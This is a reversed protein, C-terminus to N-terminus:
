CSWGRNQQSVGRPADFYFIHSFPACQQVNSLNLAPGCQASFRKREAVPLTMGTSLGFLNAQPTGLAAFSSAHLMSTFILGCAPAGRQPLQMLRTLSFLPLLMNKRSESCKGCRGFFRMPVATSDKRQFCFPLTTQTALLLWTLQVM